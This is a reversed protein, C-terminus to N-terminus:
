EPHDMGRLQGWHQWARLFSEQVLDQAGSAEGALVYAQGMLRTSHHRFFLDFEIEASETGPEAPPAVTMPEDGGSSPFPDQLAAVCWFSAQAARLSALWRLNRVTKM